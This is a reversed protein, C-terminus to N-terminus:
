NTRSARWNKDIMKNKLNTTNINEAINTMETFVRIDKCEGILLNDKM